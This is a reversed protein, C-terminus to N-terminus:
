SAAHRIFHEFADEFTHDTVENPMDPLPLAESSGNRIVTIDCDGTSWVIMRSVNDATDVDIFFSPNGSAESEATFTFAAKLGQQSLAAGQERSWDSWRHFDFM